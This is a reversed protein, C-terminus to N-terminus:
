KGNSCKHDINDKYFLKMRDFLKDLFDESLKNDIIIAMVYFSLFGILEGIEIKHSDAYDEIIKKFELFEEETM